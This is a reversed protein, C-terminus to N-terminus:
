KAYAEEEIRGDRLTICRKAQQALAAHHTVLVLSM